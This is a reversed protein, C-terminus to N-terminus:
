LTSYEAIEKANNKKASYPLMNDILQIDVISKKPPQLLGNKNILGNKEKVKFTQKLRLKKKHILAHTGLYLYSWKIFIPHFRTKGIQKQKSIISAANSNIIEVSYNKKNLVYLETTSCGVKLRNTSPEIGEVHLYIGM